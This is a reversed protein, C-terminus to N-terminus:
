TDPNKALRGCRYAKFNGSLPYAPAAVGVLAALPRAFARALAHSALLARLRAFYIGLDASQIGSNM